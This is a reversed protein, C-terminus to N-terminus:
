RIRPPLTASSNNAGCRLGIMTSVNPTPSMRPHDHSIGGKWQFNKARATSSVRAMASSPFHRRVLHSSFWSRPYSITFRNAWIMSRRRSAVRKWNSSTYEVRLRAHRGGRVMVRHSWQGVHHPLDGLLRPVGKGQCQSGSVTAAIARELGSLEAHEPH